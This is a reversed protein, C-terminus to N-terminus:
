IINGPTQPTPNSSSSAEARAPQFIGPHRSFASSSAVGSRVPENFNFKPILPVQEPEESLYISMTTEKLWEYMNLSKFLEHMEMLARNPPLDAANRPLLARTFPSKPQSQTSYLQNITDSNLSRGCPLVRPQDLFEFSIEDILFGQFHEQAHTFVQKMHLHISKKMVEDIEDANLGHSRGKELILILNKHMMEYQFIEMQKIRLKNKLEEESLTLVNIRDGRQRIEADSIKAEAERENSQWYYSLYGGFGFGALTGEAALHAMGFAILGELM